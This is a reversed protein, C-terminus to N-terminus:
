PANFFQRIEQLWPDRITDVELHLEHRANAFAVKRCNKARQCVYDQGGTMVVDDNGAQFMLIPAVLKEADDRMDWTAELAKQAFRFSVGGVQEDKKEVRLRNFGKYRVASGTGRYLEDAHFPGHGPVFSKDWGLWCAISAFSYGMWQFPFPAPNIDLMPSTTVVKTFVEPNQVMYLSLINAGMSHGLAYIQKFGHPAVVEKILLGFDDRYFSFDRVYQVQPDKLERGSAGQGRHDIIFVALNLDQIDHLFEAFKFTSETRGPLIVLARDQGPKVYSRYHIKLGDAATLFASSGNSWFDPMIRNEFEQEFVTEPVAYIAKSFTLFSILPWLWRQYARM